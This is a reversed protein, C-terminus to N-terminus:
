EKKPAPHLISYQEVLGAFAKGLEARIAERDKEAWTEPNGRCFTTYDSRNDFRAVPLYYTKDGKKVMVTNPRDSVSLMYEMDDCGYANYMVWQPVTHNLSLVFKQAESTVGGPIANIDEQGRAINKARSMEATVWVYLVSAGELIEDSLMSYSYQYGHPVPLPFSSHDPGGRAFEIFVTKGELTEPIEAFKRDMFERASHELREELGWYVNVPLDCLRRYIGVQERARDIREFLWRTASKGEPKKARIVLDRYDENILLMLSGWEFNSVFGRDPLEYFMRNQGLEVLYDDIDRMFKVYPYDDLQVEDGLHLSKSLDSEVRMLKRIESKGAAPFANLLVTKVVSM